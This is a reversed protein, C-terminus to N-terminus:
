RRPPEPACTLDLRFLIGVGGTFQVGPCTFDRTVERFGFELHLDISAQNRSNVTFFLESAGETVLFAIRSATLRHGIGRRRWTPDVVVGGLYWGKPIHNPVADAPPTIFLARAYALISNESEAVFLGGALGPNALEREFRILAETFNSGQREACLRAMGPADRREAHRLVISDDRQGHENPQYNAFLSM